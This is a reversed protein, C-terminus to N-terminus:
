RKLKKDDFVKLYDQGAEMLDQHIDLNINDLDDEDSNDGLNSRYKEFDNNKQFTDDNTHSIDVIAYKNRYGELIAKKISWGKHLCYGIGIMVTGISLILIAGM